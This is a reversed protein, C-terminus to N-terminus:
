LHDDKDVECINEEYSFVYVEKWKYAKRCNPCRGFVSEYYKNDYYETDISDTAYFENGCNPCKM